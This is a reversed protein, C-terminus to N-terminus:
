QVTKEDQVSPDFTHNSVFFFSKGNFTETVLILDINWSFKTKKLSFFWSWDEMLNSNMFDRYSILNLRIEIRTIYM